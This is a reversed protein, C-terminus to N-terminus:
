PLKSRFTYAGSGVEYVARGAQMGAFTVGESAAAPKGGETVAEASRAPVYVRASTNAPVTVQLEFEQGTRKWASAIRGYMSDYAARVWTLDGVLEPKIVIRKFGPGQPDTRIGALARFYWAGICAGFPHHRSADHLDELSEGLTSTGDAIMQWWGPSDEQTAIKYALDSYGWDVLGHLEPMIGVFGASTHDKWQHINEILQQLALDRKGDPVMDLWLSLALSTQSNKAYEGTAPHFFHRDYSERIQDALRAYKAADETKGLLAAARSVANVCYFYGATSTEIVPTRRAHGGGKVELWDGLSWNVLNDAATGRLYEAWRRMPEYADELVRRDGYYEYLKWAVYPMTGGWWPDSFAHPAGGPKTLGWGNTPVIPPVSGNDEQAEIMDRLYKTYVAAADYNYIASEMTNLGDQTWGMKERTPEEGPISHCSNSLTRRLAKQLLNIKENSCAFEGASAWDTHVGHAVMSGLAPRRALGTVQVYRFGHYTFRPEFAGRGSNDLILEGSQYRGYTHSHSNQTELAGDPLLLENYDLRIKQGPEGSAEIRAWGTLNVGFDFLYVGPKPESLQVPKVTETIRLPPMKQAVLRGAPAPLIAAPKWSSDEYGPAEWGKKELRADWTEGARICNFVLPGTSWKWAADSVITEHKGDPYEVEIELLLKPQAKWPAKEFGFLDPTPPHYWGNGLIVGIANRGDRFAGSVDHTVYTVSKNYNTFAPDLVHDGIRKGNVYLEFYGLGSVYATARAPTRSISFEKRLLIAPNQVQDVPVDQAGIWQGHWDAPALLGISWFAPKSWDSAVGDRDWVRVKWWCRTRAALARGSYTVQVSENSAVKGSDWLDARGDTLLRPDSSVLVHYATQREGRRASELAWSLRPQRVDIGLPNALYECRLNVPAIAPPAANWAALLLALTLMSIM